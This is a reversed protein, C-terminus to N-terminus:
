STGPSDGAAAAIATAATGPRVAAINSSGPSATAGPRRSTAAICLRSSGNAGYGQMANIQKLEEIGFAGVAFLVVSGAKPVRGPETDCRSSTNSGTLRCLQRSGSERINHIDKVKRLAAAHM